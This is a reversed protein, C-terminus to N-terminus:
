ASESPWVGHLGYLAVSEIEAAASSAAVRLTQDTALPAVLVSLAIDGAGVFIELSRTDLLLRLQIRDDVLALPASVDGCRITQAAVDCIVEIGRLTLTIQDAGNPKMRLVVEDGDAVEGGSAAEDLWHLPLPQTFPSTLHVHSWAHHTQRLGELEAVPAAHLRLGAGTQRLSLTVPIVMQQNFPLAGFTIGQGWGIQVCRGEPANSYTQAAYFRGYWLQQKETPTDPTFTQGDFEGIAYRGDAAYLVWKMRNSDGDIPLHLFDPCEFYGEIRSCYDWHKLDRSKFFAIWRKDEYEDYCALVWHGDSAKNPPDYWFVKTDRGKHSIIPNDEYRHWTRGRDHSYILCEGLATDTFVAILTKDPGSQFGATNHHDVLACGSFCMGKAHEVMYLAEPLEQWHLLDPSIAHGWHMNGWDTGFPNHQYFLHYEGEYYVLGNPDNLWGRRTTFHFQPRAIVTEGDVMREAYLTEAGLIADSQKAQELLAAHPTEGVPQLTITKGDFMGIDLFAWFDPTDGNNIDALAMEFQRMAKDDVLVQITIKPAGKKIPFHLYRQQCSIQTQNTM